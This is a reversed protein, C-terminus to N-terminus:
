CTPRAAPMVETYCWCASCWRPQSPHLRHVGSDLVAVRVGSEGDFGSSQVASGGVYPVTASLDLEHHIVPSVKAVGSLAAIESLRAADVRLAIANHAMQVRGLEKGGMSQLQTALSDQSAKLQRRHEVGPQRLSADDRAARGNALDLGTSEAM